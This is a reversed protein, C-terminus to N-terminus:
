SWFLFVTSAIVAITASVMIKTLYTNHTGYRDSANYFSESYEASSLSERKTTLYASPVTLFDPKNM